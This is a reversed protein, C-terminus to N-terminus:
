KWRGVWWRVNAKRLGLEERTWSGVKTDGHWIGDNEGEEWAIGLKEEALSLFHQCTEISTYRGAGVYVRAATSVSLLLRLSRVLDGHSSHYHLLDSLIAVDYGEKPRGPLVQRRWM